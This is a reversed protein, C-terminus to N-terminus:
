GHTSSFEAVTAEGGAHFTQKASVRSLVRDIPPEHHCKFTTVDARLAFHTAKVIWISYSVFHAVGTQVADPFRADANNPSIDIM